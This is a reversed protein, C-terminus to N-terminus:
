QRYRAGSRRRGELPADVKAWNVSLGVGSSADSYEDVVFGWDREARVFVWSDDTYRVHGTALAAIAVDVPILVANGIPGSGEPGIPLGPPGGMSEIGALFAALLRVAGRPAKTTGVVSAVVDPKISPYYHRQDLTGMAVCDDASLLETARDRRMRQADTYHITTWAPPFRELRYSFVDASRNLAAELAPAVRGVVIRLLVEDYPDM